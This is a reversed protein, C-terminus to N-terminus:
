GKKIFTKINKYVARMLRKRAEVSGWAVHPTIIYREKQRLKALYSGKQMPEIELVDTAAYIKKNEIADRLAKENIIGGRAVNIIVADQKMFGLGQEDILNKTKENLPAHVSIIDSTKLLDKLSLSPYKEKRQVGSTSYYAVKMGFACAIKATEKGIAGLGIIGWRKDYLEFFPKDLNTFIESNQWKGSKVYQEYFGLRNVLSLALAFTHQAVSKTSYGAVNKVAVGLEESAKLDVNNMGTATLAILKLKPLKELLERDFVVKNTIVIDADKVREFKEDNQTTQYIDFKGLKYFDSLDVDKGLTQADLLVMKM